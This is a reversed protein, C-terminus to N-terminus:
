EGLNPKTKRSKTAKPTDETKDTAPPNVIKKATSQKAPTKQATSRPKQTTTKLVELEARLANIEYKLDEMTYGTQEMQLAKIEKRMQHIRLYLADLEKRTPINLAGLLEDIVKREHQKWEMLANLQNANIQNFDETAVFETYAQEACDIWLRYIDRLNEVTNGEKVLMTIKDRLLDIARSGVKNFFASYEQQSQQYQLLLRISEQVQTQWERLYSHHSISLLSEITDTLTNNPQQFIDSKFNKLFDGPLLSLSSLTRWWTNIPPELFRLHEKSVFQNFNSKLEEFSHDWLQKWDSSNIDIGSLNHLTKLFQENTQFYNQGQEIFKKFIDQKNFPLEPMITQWYQELTDSWSATNSLKELNDTSNDLIQQTLSSWAEWYQQQIRLWDQQETGETTKESNNKM